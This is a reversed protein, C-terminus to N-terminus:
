RETVTTEWDEVVEAFIEPGFVLAGRYPEVKDLDLGAPAEYTITVHPQYEPFDWSAGARKIEEHRWALSSHNFLLVVAGKDGLPEVLRPGGPAVRLQGKEDGSWADAGAKMWDVPSRSFAVTVHLEDAPTTTEFGQGKAWAIFEAANLLKRSVYLTRPSADSLLVLSQDRTIAGAKEMEQVTNENAAEPPEPPEGLERDSEEIAKDLGPWRGSENLRNAAAKALADSPILATRTYIDVTEAEMKEIEAAEKPDAEELAGFEYYVEPPRSGLTSRILIEDLRDLAPALEVDRKADIMRNFDDQEGKGTSQLGGPSTGMLRTVPIDSAGAVLGVFERMLEPMQSFSLQRTEWTEGSNAKEPDGGDLLLMGFLGKFRAAAAVRAAILAEGEETGVSQTLGPITIVDQKLEHLLTSIAAQSIEANDIASKLSVLLPDGWFSDLQSLALGAPPLPAGHFPIVRSPHIPVTNGKAGRMEWMSPQGFFDSEPDQEFGWPATLQHRSVVAIYRLSEKGLAEINLPANPFGQRVGLVLAAGGHLRATTLVRYLKDWVGLKREAAELAEIKPQDAQWARRARTMEFPPLDHVKRTLWSSRYAAELQQQGLPQVWYGNATNRDASTGLRSFVNAVGDMVRALVPMKLVDGM